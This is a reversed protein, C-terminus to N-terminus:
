TDIGLHKFFAQNRAKASSLVERFSSIEIFTRYNDDWWYYSSTGARQSFRGLQKMMASLTPTIDAVIHCTFPTDPDINRLPTGDFKSAEGASRLQEVYSRVQSIPNDALTYDDRKPRKFEIITIPQSQDDSGFSLGLDFITIDPRDKSESNGGTQRDMRRDSNFYSYFALRDDLLWLNHDEYGLNESTSNLPCIIGHVVKEYHSKEDEINKYRLGSEFIELISKRRAVYEALSSMADEKLKQMFSETQQEVDPLSSEWSKSYDRKRKKYDRLSERSLEIFIEEETQKSLHLNEAVQQADRAAYFFRPHEKSIEEIKAAQKKRIESIEPGLFDKIRHKAEDIISDIQDDDLSFATRTDNANRNLFESEVYGLFAYKQDIAKLGLVSDMEHRSVARGNAGLYLANVSKEDDSISKPLLFCHVTFKDDINPTLFTFDKDREVKQSFIEFLDISSIIDSLIIEPHEINAFYSIFHAILRNAITELKRPLRSSFESRFPNITISTGIKGDSKVYERYESVPNEITFGFNCGLVGKEDTTFASVIDARDAVKLWLLRGVGKGGIKAKRRSDFKRLSVLNDANFGAGNDHVTFGCYAENADHHMVIRIRGKSLNDTGFREEIAHISNMVAEFLPYLANKANPALSINNIRGANDSLWGQQEVQM